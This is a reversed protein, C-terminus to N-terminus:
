QLVRKQGSYQMTTMIIMGIFIPLTFILILTRRDNSRDQLWGASVVSFDGILVRPMNLLLVQPSTGHFRTTLFAVACTLAPCSGPGSIRSTEIIQYKKIYKNYLGVQDLGGRENPVFKERRHSPLPKLHTLSFGFSSSVMLSLLYVLILYSFEWPTRAGEYKRVKTSPSETLSERM